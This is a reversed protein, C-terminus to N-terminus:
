AIREPGEILVGDDHPSLFLFLRGSFGIPMNVTVRIM